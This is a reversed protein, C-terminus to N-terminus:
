TDLEIDTREAWSKLGEICRNLSAAGAWEIRSEEIHRRCWALMAQESRDRVTGADALACWLRIVKKWQGVRGKHCRSLISRGAARRWGARQMEQLAAEIQHFGMTTASPKGQHEKAGHGALCRRYREETWALDRQAIRLLAYLKRRDTM